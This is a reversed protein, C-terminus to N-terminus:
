VSASAKCSALVETVINTGVGSGPIFKTVVQMDTDIGAEAERGGGVESRKDRGTATATDTVTVGGETQCGGLNSSNRTSM